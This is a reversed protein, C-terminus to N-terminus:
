AGDAFLVFSGSTTPWDSYGGASKQTQVQLLVAANAGLGTLAYPGAGNVAAVGWKPPVGPEGGSVDECITSTVQSAAVVTWSAGADLSYRIRSDYRYLDSTVAGSPKISGTLNVSLTGDARANTAINAGSQAFAAGNLEATGPTWSKTVQNVAAADETTSFSAKLGAVSQGDATVTFTVEGGKAGAGLATLQVTSGSVVWTGGTPVGTIVISEIAVPGGGQVAGIGFAM